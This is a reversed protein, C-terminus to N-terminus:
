YSSSRVALFKYSVALFPKCSVVPVDRGLLATCGALLRRSINGGDFFKM